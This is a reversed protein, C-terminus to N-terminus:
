GNNLEVRFAQDYITSWTGDITEGDCQNKASCKQAKAKYGDLLQTRYILAITLCDITCPTSDVILCKSDFQVIALSKNTIEPVINFVGNTIIRKTVTSTPEWSNSGTVVDVEVRLTVLRHNSKNLLHMTISAHLLMMSLTEISLLDWV